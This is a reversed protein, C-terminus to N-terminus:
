ILEFKVHIFIFLSGVLVKLAQIFTFLYLNEMSKGINSTPMIVTIFEIYM